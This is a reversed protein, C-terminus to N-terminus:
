KEETKKITLKDKRKKDTLNFQTILVNSAHIPYKIKSGDKKTYEVGEIYVKYKDTDVSEIKGTKGKFNGVMIRVVDGTRVRVSRKGHKKQLEKSLHSNLMKGRVHLPAQAVYKRQKRPQTSSKWTNSFTQKM